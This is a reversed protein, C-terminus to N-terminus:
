FQFYIFEQADFAPGYMGFVFSMFFLLLLVAARFFLNQELLVVDISKDEKYKVYDVFFMILLAFWLIDIQQTDLGLYYVTGDFLKWIDFMSFMRKIYLFAAKVTEARFFIWAFAVFIFTCVRQGFRFSFCNTKIHAHEYIKKRINVTLTGIIQYLGHLMGWIIFTWNAGHWIGSVLFTIMLNCSKQLTSCKSGGLPIYVYDRFWTSLSIHWRRWFEQMSASFYPAKFNETVRLGLMKGLGLAILSYSSFDCYIQISYCVAAFLLIFFGYEGYFMFVTNVVVAIRDAIVLKLFSGYLILTLGNQFNNFDFRIGSLERIQTLLGQPREIPGSLITPFFTVYAAYRIFNNEPSIKKKHVEFVYSLAQFTYFSIGLPMLIKLRFQSLPINCWAALQHFSDLFFAAYKFCILSGVCLMVTFFVITRRIKPLSCRDIMKAGLWTAFTIGIVALLYRIDQLCSIYYFLNCILLFVHRFRGPIVYYGALVILIFIMFYLSIFQM